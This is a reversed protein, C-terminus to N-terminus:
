LDSTILLTVLVKLSVGCQKNSPKMVFVLCSIYGFKLVLM